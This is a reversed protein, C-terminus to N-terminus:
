SITPTSAPAVPASLETTSAIANLQHISTCLVVLLRDLFAELQPSMTKYAQCPGYNSLFIVPINKIKTIKSGKVNVAMPSGVIFQNLWTLKYQSKMEDFVILDYDNNFGDLFGDGDMPVWFVRLYKELEMVLSTKGCGPSGTLWLSKSRLKRPESPKVNDILWEAVALQTEPELPAQRADILRALCETWDKKGTNLRKNVVWECLDDIKRKNMLYFGPYDAYIEERTAGADLRTAITDTIREKPRVSSLFGALDGDVLASADEKQVYAIWHKPSRLGQINPHFGDVDFVSADRFHRCKSLRLYAHLHPTGDKHQEIAIVSGCYQDGGLIRLADLLRERTLDCKPYTLGVHKADLRFTTTM